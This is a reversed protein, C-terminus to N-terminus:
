SEDVTFKQVFYKVLSLQYDSLKEFKVGCRRNIMTGSPVDYPELKDYVTSVPILRMYFGEETCAIELKGRGSDRSERVDDYYQFSLGSRSIDIVPGIRREDNQLVAHTGEKVQFRKHKRGDVGKKIKM